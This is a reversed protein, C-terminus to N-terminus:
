IQNKFKDDALNPVDDKWLYYKNLGKWVFNNLDSNPLQGLNDDSDTCSTATIVISILLFLIYKKNNM